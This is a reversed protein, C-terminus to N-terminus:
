INIAVPQDQRLYARVRVSAIHQIYKGGLPTTQISSGEQVSFSDLKNGATEDVNLLDEAQALIRLTNYLAGSIQSARLQPNPSDLPDFGYNYGGLRVNGTDLKLVLPDSKAHTGGFIGDASLQKAKDFLDM